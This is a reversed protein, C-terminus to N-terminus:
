LVQECIVRWNGPVTVRGRHAQSLGSLDCEKDLKM